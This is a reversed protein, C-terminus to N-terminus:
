HRTQISYNYKPRPRRQRWQYSMFANRPPPPALIPAVTSADGVPTSPHFLQFEPVGDQQPPEDWCLATGELILWVTDAADGRKAQMVTDFLTLVTRSLLM